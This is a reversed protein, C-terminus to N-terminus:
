TTKDTNKLKVAVMKGRTMESMIQGEPEILWIVPVNLQYFPEIDESWLYGDTTVVLANFKIGAENFRDIAPALVTGGCAKRTVAKTSRSLKEPACAETDVQVMTVPTKYTDCIDLITSWLNLLAKDSVSGSVDSVVGLEFIRDKTRGKIWQASPLRRDRRMITKRINAKKNGVVRRLLQKWDVERNVTLNDIMDSYSNPLKGKSKQTQAGADEVLKKTIEKQLTPDGEIQEWLGHADLPGAGGSKEEDENKEFLDYYYEASENWLPTVGKVPLNDPYLAYSPLHERDIEQDLACDSAFNYIRPDKDGDRVRILHGLAIHLMEHKLIGIRQELPMKLCFGLVQNNENEEEENIVEKPNLHLVYHDKNFSVGAAAPLKENFFVRCKSLLHMYFVYDRYYQSSSVTMAVIAEDFAKRDIAM